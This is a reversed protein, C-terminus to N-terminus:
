GSELQDSQGPQKKSGFSVTRLNPM